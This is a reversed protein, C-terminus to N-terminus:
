NKAIHMQIKKIANNCFRRCQPESYDIAQAVMWWKYKKFFKLEIIQKEFCSLHKLMDEIEHKKNFLEQLENELRAYEHCYKDIIKEVSNLVPDSVSNSSPMGTLVPSKVGRQVDITAALNFLETNIGDIKFQIYKYNHLKAKIENIAM